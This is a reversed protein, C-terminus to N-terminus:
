WWTEIQVGAAFGRSAEGYLIPAVLGVFGESWRAWTVYARLSPRSLAAMRPTIQPALTLKFLSGSTVDRQDSHDFGAELQLSFYRNLFYAPRVGFSVWTIRDGVAAGNAIEQWVGGLQFTFPGLRDLLLDEVVRLQWVDAYDVTDGPVYTRGPIPTLVARFNYAAGTGYQVSLRNRGTALPREHTAAASWGANNLVPVDGDRLHLTDGSFLGLDLSLQTRGGLLPLEYLRLEFTSKSFQFSGPAPVTGDSNLENLSGGLWAVGLRAKEGVHVGEVGGGYGSLDRYWFDSM